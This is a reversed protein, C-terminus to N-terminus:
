SGLPEFGPALFGALRLAVERRQSVFFHDAGEIVHLRAGIAQAISRAEDVSVYPDREGVLVKAPIALPQSSADVGLLRLAPAILALREIRPERWAAQLAVGAGFSYGLIAIRAAPCARAVSEVAGLADEVEGRGDSYEGLSEGVGRYNFRLTGIRDAARERLMRTMMVIVANDMTGGYLPHPHCLVVCREAGRPLRAMAELTLGDSTRLWFLQEDQMRVRPPREPSEPVPPLNAPPM